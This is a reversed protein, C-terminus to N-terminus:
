LLKNLYVINGSGDNEIRYLNERSIKVPADHKVAVYTRLKGVERAFGTQSNDFYDPLLLVLGPVPSESFPLLTGRVFGESIPEADIIEVDNIWAIDQSRGLCPPNQPRDFWLKFELNDLYLDLVPKIIFQRKAVATQKQEKLIKNKMELRHSTEIDIATGEGKFVYGLRTENPKVERGCVNGILGLLTSYPPLPSTLGTGSYLLPLRFTATWGTINVHLLKM